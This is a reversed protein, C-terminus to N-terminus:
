CSRRRGLIHGADYSEMTLRRRRHRHAHSLSGPPFLPMAAAADEMTYLPEVPPTTRTIGTSSSPTAKRSTACHRSAHRRVSRYDGSHHLDARSIRGQGAAAPPRQPRYPRPFARRSRLKQRRIPFDRNLREAEKRRGQFMGCDLLYHRGEIRIQADLGHGHGGRRSLYSEDPWCGSVLM